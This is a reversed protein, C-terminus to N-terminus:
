VAANALEESVPLPAQFDQLRLAQHVEKRLERLVNLQAKVEQVPTAPATQMIQELVQIKKNLAAQFVSEPTSM